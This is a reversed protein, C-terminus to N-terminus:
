ARLGGCVCPITASRRGSGAAVLVLVLVLALVPGVQRPGAAPRLPLLKGRASLSPRTSVSQARRRALETVVAATQSCM